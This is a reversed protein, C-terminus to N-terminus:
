SQAEDTLERNIAPAPLETLVRDLPLIAAEDRKGFYERAKGRLWMSRVWERTKEQLEKKTRARLVEMAGGM